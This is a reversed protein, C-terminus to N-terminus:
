QTANGQWYKSYPSAKPNNIPLSGAKDKPKNIKFEKELTTDAARKFAEEEDFDDSLAKARKFIDGAIRAATEPPVRGSRVLGAGTEVARDRLGTDETPVGGGGYASGNGAAEDVRKSVYEVGKDMGNGKKGMTAFDKAISSQTKLSSNLYGTMVSNVEQTSGDPNTVTAIRAPMKQGMFEVTGIHTGSISVGKKKLARNAREEDGTSEWIKMADVYGDKKAAGYMKSIRKATILTKDPDAYDGFMASGKGMHKAYGIAGDLTYIDGQYEKAWQSLGLQKINKLAPALSDEALPNGMAMLSYRTYIDHLKEASPIEMPAPAGQVAEVGRAPGPPAQQAPPQQAGDQPGGPQQAPM